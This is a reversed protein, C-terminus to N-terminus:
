VEDSGKPAAINAALDASKDTGGRIIFNTKENVDRLDSKLKEVDATRVLSVGGQWNILSYERNATCIEQLVLLLTASEMTPEAFNIGEFQLGADPKILKTRALNLIGQKIQERKLTDTLPSVPQTNNTM